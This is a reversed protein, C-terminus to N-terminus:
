IQGALRTNQKKTDKLIAKIIATQKTDLKALDTIGYLTKSLQQKQKKTAM